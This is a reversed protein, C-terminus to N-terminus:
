ASWEVRIIEHCTVPVTFHIEGDDSASWEIQSGTIAHQIRGVSRDPRITCRAEIMGEEELLIGGTEQQLRMLHLVLNDAVTNVVVRLSSPGEVSLQSPISISRLANRLLNRVWPNPLHSYSELLPLPLYISTGQGFRNVVVGPFNTVSGPPAHDHFIHYQRSWDAEIIPDTMRGVSLAGERLQCRIPPNTSITQYGTDKFLLPMAPMSQDFPPQLRDLYGITYDSWSLFDVGFLDALLFNDRLDGNEDLLSTCYTSIVNGGGEVYARIQDATDPSMIAVNPLLLCAYDRLARPYSFSGSERAHQVPAFLAAESHLVDSPIQTADLLATAACTASQGTLRAAPPQTTATSRAKRAIREYLTNPESHLIAVQAASTGEMCIAERERIWRFLDTIAEYVPDAVRGGYVGAPIVSHNVTVAGGEALALASMGKLTAVTTITHHGWSGISEPMWLEFSKGSSRMWKSKASCVDYAPPHAETGYSDLRADLDYETSMNGSGNWTWELGARVENVAAHIRLITDRKVDRQFRAFRMWDQHGFSTPVLDSGAYARFGAACHGCFCGRAHWYQIDLMVGDIAYREAVEAIHPIIADVYPSSMCFMPYQEFSLTEGAADRQLWTEREGSTDYDLLVNFYAIFRIDRRTVAECVEGFLDRGAAVTPHQRGIRTPYLSNGFASKATFQVVQAGIEVLQDAFYEVDLELSELFDPMQWDSLLRRPSTQRPRRHDQSKDSM